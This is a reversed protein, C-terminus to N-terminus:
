SLPPHKLMQPLTAMPLGHKELKALGADILVLAARAKAVTDATFQAVLGPVTGKVPKPKKPKCGKMENLKENVLDVLTEVKAGKHQEYFAVQMDQPLRSTAWAAKPALKLGRLTPHLNKNTTLDRSVTGESVNFLAAVEKSRLNGVEKARFFATARELGSLERHDNNEKFQIALIDLPEPRQALVNALIDTMGARRRALLRHQGLLTEYRDGDIPFITIPPIPDNREYGAAIRDVLELDVENIPNSPPDILSLPIVKPLVATLTPPMGSM